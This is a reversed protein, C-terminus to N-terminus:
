LTMVTFMVAAGLISLYLYGERALVGGTGGPHERLFLNTALFIMGVRALHGFTGRTTVWVTRKDYDQLLEPLL